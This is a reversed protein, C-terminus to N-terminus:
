PINHLQPRNQPQLLFPFLFLTIFYSLIIFSAYLCFFIRDLILAALAYEYAFYNSMTDSNTPIKEKLQCPLRDVSNFNKSFGPNQSCKEVKKKNLSELEKFDNMEIENKLWIDESEIINKNLSRQWTKLEIDDNQSKNKKIMKKLLDRAQKNIGLFRALRKFFIQRVFKPIRNEKSFQHKTKENLNTVIVAMIVSLSTFSMVITLYISIIPVTESTTPVKEAVMLM